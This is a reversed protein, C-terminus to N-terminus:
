LGFCIDERSSGLPGEQELATPIVEDALTSGLVTYFTPVLGRGATPCKDTFPKPREKKSKYMCIQTKLSSSYM